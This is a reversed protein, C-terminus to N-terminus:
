AVEIPHIWCFAVAMAKMMEPRKRYANRFQDDSTFVGLPLCCCMRKSNLFDRELRALDACHKEQVPEITVVAAAESPTTMSIPYPPLICTIFASFVHLYTVSCIM